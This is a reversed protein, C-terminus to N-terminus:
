EDAYCNDLFFPVLKHPIWVEHHFPLPMLAYNLYINDIVKSGQFDSNLFKQFEPDVNASDSCMLDYIVEIEINSKGGGTIIGPHREPIPPNNNYAESSAFLSALTIFISSARM